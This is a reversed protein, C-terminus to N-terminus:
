LLNNKEEFLIFMIEIYILSKPSKIKASEKGYYVQRICVTNIIRVIRDEVFMNSNM